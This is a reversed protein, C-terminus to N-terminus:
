SLSSSPEIDERCAAVVVRAFRGGGCPNHRCRYLLLPLSSPSPSPIDAATAFMHTAASPINQSTWAQSNAQSLMMMSLCVPPPKFSPPPPIETRLRYQYTASTSLSFVPCQKSKRNQNPPHQWPWAMRPMTDTTSEPTHLCDAAAGIEQLVIWHHTTAQLPVEQWALWPCIVRSFVMIAYIYAELELKLVEM